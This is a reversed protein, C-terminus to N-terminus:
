RAFVKRATGQPAMPVGKEKGGIFVVIAPEIMDGHHRLLPERRRLHPGEIPQPLNAEAVVVRQPEQENAEAGFAIERHRQKRLRSGPNRDRRKEGGAVGLQAAAFAISGLLVRRRQNERGVVQPLFQLTQAFPPRLHRLHDRKFRQVKQPWPLVQPWDLKMAIAVFGAVVAASSGGSSEADHKGHRSLTEEAEAVEAM